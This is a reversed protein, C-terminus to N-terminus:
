PQVESSSALAALMRKNVICAACVSNFTLVPRDGYIEADLLNAPATTLADLRAQLDAVRAEAEQWLRDREAEVDLRQRIREVAARAAAREVPGAMPEDAQLPISVITLDADDTM